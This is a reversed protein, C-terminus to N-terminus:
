EPSAGRVRQISSPSGGAPGRALDVEPKIPPVVFLNGTEGPRLTNVRPSELVLEIEMKEAPSRLIVKRPIVHNATRQPNHYEKIEASWLEQGQSSRLVHKVIRGRNPGTSAITTVKQLPQGQPSTTQTMLEIGEGTTRMNYGNMPGFEQLCLGEAIWDPQLPLQVNRLRPLDEYSCRYLNASEQKVWFWFEKDNSGIDAQSSGVAEATLRFNKPKEYHVMAPLGFSKVGQKVQIRVDTFQVSHVDHANQNLYAVMQEPRASTSVPPPVSANRQFPGTACGIASLTVLVVACGIRRM